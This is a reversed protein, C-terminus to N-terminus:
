SNRKQSTRRRRKRRKTGCQAWRDKFTGLVCVSMTLKAFHDTAMVNEGLGQHKIVQHSTANTEMTLVDMSESYSFIFPTKYFISGSIITHSKM